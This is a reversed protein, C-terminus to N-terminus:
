AQSKFVCLNSGDFEQPSIWGEQRVIDMLWGRANGKTVIIIKKERSLTTLQDLVHGYTEASFPDYLYYVEAEPIKFDKSSLDQTFFNVHEEMALSQATHQAIQVRHPVFEYGIFDVEPHMLGVVLGVRGYGSGLDIFRDGPKLSLNALATLVTSYGSQVGVGAGEYLRERMKMDQKMGLDAEYNLEFIADLGDFTRYLSFGLHTGQSKKEYQLRTEFGFLGSMKHLAKILFKKKDGNSRSKIEALVRGQLHASRQRMRQQDKKSSLVLVEQLYSLPLLENKFLATEIDLPKQEQHLWQEDGLFAVATELFSVDVFVEALDSTSAEVFSPEAIAFSKKLVEHAHTM